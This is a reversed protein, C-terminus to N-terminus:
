ICCINEKFGNNEKTAVFLKKLYLLVNEKSVGFLLIRLLVRCIVVRFTWLRTAFRLSVFHSGLM